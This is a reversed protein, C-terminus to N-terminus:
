HQSNGIKTKTVSTEIAADPHKEIIYDEGHFKLKLHASKLVNHLEDDSLSILFSSNSLKIETEKKDSRCFSSGNNVLTDKNTYLITKDLKSCDLPLNGNSITIIIQVPSHADITRKYELSFIFPENLLDGSRVNLTDAHVLKSYTDKVKLNGNNDEGVCSYMLLGCLVALLLTIKNKMVKQKLVTNVM